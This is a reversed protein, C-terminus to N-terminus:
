AYEQNETVIDIILMASVLLDINDKRVNNIIEQIKDYKDLLTYSLTNLSLNYKIQQFLQKEIDSLKFMESYANKVYLAILIQINDAFDNWAEMNASITQIMQLRAELASTKCLPVIYEEKCRIDTVIDYRHHLKVCRSLITEPILSAYKTILFLYTNNPTDELCKLCSNFANINMNAADIIIGVKIGSIPATKYLFEQLQRIQDVKIVMNQDNSKIISIDPHNLDNINSFLYKKLFDNVEAYAKDIANSTILYSNHLKTNTYHSVLEKQIM